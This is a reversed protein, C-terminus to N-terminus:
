GVAVRWVFHVCVFALVVVACRCLCVGLAVSLVCEASVPGSPGRGQLVSM